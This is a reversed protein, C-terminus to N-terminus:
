FKIETVRMQKFKGRWHANMDRKYAKMKPLTSSNQEDKLRRWLNDHFSVQYKLPQDQPSILM